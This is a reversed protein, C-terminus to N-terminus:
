PRRSYDRILGSHNATQWLIEILPDGERKLVRYVTPESIGARKALERQTLRPLVAEKGSDDAHKLLSKMSLIHEHLERKIKDIASARSNRKSSSKALKKTPLIDAGAVQDIIAQFDFRLENEELYVLSRLEFLRDPEFGPLGDPPLDSIAFLLPSKGSPIKTLIQAAQRGVFCRGLYIPRSQGAIAARGVSWLKGPVLEQISGRAHLSYAVLEVIPEFRFAWRRLEDSSVEISGCSPCALYYQTRGDPRVIPMVEGSFDYCDSCTVCTAPKAPVLLKLDLLVEMGSRGVLAHVDTYSVSPEAFFASGWVYDLPSTSVLM